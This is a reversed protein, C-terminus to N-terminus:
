CVLDRCTKLAKNIRRRATERSYGNIDAIEQITNNSIFRQRMISAVWEPVSSLIIEVEEKSYNDFSKEINETAYQFKKSEQKLQNKFAYVLQQYLYSTFKAKRSPDYKETCKWLTTLSISSIDDPDIYNKYKNEIMRMISVVSSDNLCDNIDIKEIM